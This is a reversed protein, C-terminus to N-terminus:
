LPKRGLVTVSFISAGGRRFERLAEESLYQRLLEDPLRISKEKAVRVEAFGALRIVDLYAERQMAGSVCGAYLEAAKQLAPNLEGQIVIDSISFRGGPRLVRFIEAFARAKDPVLNLVCNSIAVDASSDALPLNEIEGFIFEVNDYGLKESNRRAKEIMAETMDVGIVRGAHGVLGRAVFADNGAGSGLDLVIEGAQIAAHETPLGCGLGLDAEPVYGDLNNYSDSFCTISESGCCSGQSLAIESYKERVLNKLEESM